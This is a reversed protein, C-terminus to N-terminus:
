GLGRRGARRGLAWKTGSYTLAKITPLEGPPVLLGSGREALGRVVLTIVAVSAYALEALDAAYETVAALLRAAPAAPVALLVGDAMITEPAPVPGCVLRFRDITAARAGRVTMGTRLRVGRGALDRVLADIMTSVGDVLGAFVPGGDADPWRTRM